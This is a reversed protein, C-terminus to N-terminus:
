DLLDIKDILIDDKYILKMEFYPEDNLIKNLFHIDGEWLNLQSVKDKDVWSLDGENCEILEGKFDSSTYIYM